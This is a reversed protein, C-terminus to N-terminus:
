EASVALVKPPGAVADTVTTGLVIQLNTHSNKPIQKAITQMLQPDSLFEGATETGYTYLGGVVIVVHGTESNWIRSILAYDMLVPGGAAGQDDTSKDTAWSWTRLSPNKADKIYILHKEADLALSYRLQQTLRLSWENNFAGILVVPGERLDTFSSAEERRIMVRKGQLQLVGLVRATTVADAFPVTTSSTKHIIPLSSATEGPTSSPPGNPVDGVALLVAGPTEVVPKWFLAQASQPRFWLYGFVAVLLVVAVTSVTYWNKWSRETAASVVLPEKLELEAATITALGGVGDMGADTEAVAGAPEPLKFQPIYSGPVLSMRLESRHKEEGYYIALRKRLESAATRVIHDENTDYSPPRGFVEVGITREKIQDADGSLTKEVVYRLFQISRKSSRFAPDQVISELQERIAEPNM